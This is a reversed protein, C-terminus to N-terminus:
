RWLDTSMYKLGSDCLIAVLTKGAEEGQLLKLGAAVNAGSSFGAFIGEERALRRATAVAEEDTIQVFGDPKIDGMLTLDTMAYGGGQIPHGPDTVAGGSLVAAGAPEVVYGRISPDHRKFTRWLGAFTGGSGVFDCYADIKGNTAELIERATGIEHALSNGSRHFQDLRFAGQEKTIRQTEQEVLALDEGSVRGPISGPAQPVLVVEAGLARMMRAREESNGVSMVAIFTLGRAACVLAAGTGANGSTLEIVSRERTLEGSALADEIIQRAMRDKKSAGPNNMELKVLLEGDIGKTLNSLRVLPTNGISEVISPFISM